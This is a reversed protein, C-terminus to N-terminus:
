FGPHDTFYQKPSKGLAKKFMTIFATVSEYGLVASTEQVSIGKSLSQLAVILHFQQRWRGFTMGTEKLVLRSFSRESMGLRKSWDGLTTRDAPDQAFQDAIKRLKQHGSIPLHLQQKEMRPLQDLLVDVILSTSHDLPYPTPLAEIHSIMENVLPTIALTCCEIPMTTANPDVFLFGIKANLTARNSHPVGGPIWVGCGPPVMWLGSPEECIVGGHLAFVLQGMRHSHVPVESERERVDVRIASLPRDFVDPDYTLVSNRLSM